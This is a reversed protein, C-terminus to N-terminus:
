YLIYMYGLIGVLGVLILVTLKEEFEPSISVEIESMFRFQIHNFGIVVKHDFNGRGSKEERTFFFRFQM